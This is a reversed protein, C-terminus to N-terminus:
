DNPNSEGQFNHWNRKEIVRVNPASRIWELFPLIDRLETDQMSGKFPLVSILNGYHRDLKKSSDDIILIHELSRKFQRKVKDLNKRWSYEWLDHDYHLTCKSRSWVFILRDPNPFIQPIVAEAYSNSSSTWVAVDFWDMIKEIFADVFPRKWIQYGPITFSPPPLEVTEANEKAHILTEDLDLILLHRQNLLQM